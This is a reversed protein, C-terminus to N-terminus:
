VCGSLRPCRQEPPSKFGMKPNQKGSNELTNGQFLAIRTSFVPLCHFCFQQLDVYTKETPQIRQLRLIARRMEPTDTKRWFGDVDSRDWTETSVLHRPSGTALARRLAPTSSKRRHNGPTLRSCTSATRPNASCLRVTEYVPIEVAKRM